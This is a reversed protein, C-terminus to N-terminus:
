NSNKVIDYFRKLLCKLRKEIQEEPFKEYDQFFRNTLTIRSEKYMSKKEENSKVDKHVDRELLLLNGMSYLNKEKAKKDIIHEITADFIFSLGSNGRNSRKDQEEESITELIFRILAHEKIENKTMDRNSSGSYFLSKSEILAFNPLKEKLNNVFVAFVEESKKKREKTSKNKLKLLDKSTKSYTGTFKNAPTKVLVHIAQHRAMFKIYSKFMKNNIINMDRCEFLTILLIRLQSVDIKGFFELYRKIMRNDDQKFYGKEQFVTDGDNPKSLIKYYSSATKLSNIFDIYSKQDSKVVKLFKEFLNNKTIGTYRGYMYHFMFQNLDDGSDYINYNVKKWTNTGLQSDDEIVSFIENKILDSPTLIKGRYNLNRFLKHAEDRDNHYICIMTSNSLHVGLKELCNVYKEDMNDPMDSNLNANLGLAFNEKTLLSKIYDYSELLWSQESTQAEVDAGNTKKENLNLIEIPFIPNLAENVLRPLQNSEGGSKYDFTLRDYFDVEYAPDVMKISELIAAFFLIMTTLRQQGDIVEYPDDVKPSTKDGLLLIMGFFYKTSESDITIQNKDIKIGSSQILDFFFDDFNDKKWSFERQFNPIRYRRQEGFIERISLEFPTFSM